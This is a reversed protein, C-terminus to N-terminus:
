GILTKTKKQRQWYKRQAKSIKSPSGAIEEANDGTVVEFSEGGEEGYFSKPMPPIMPFLPRERLMENERRIAEALSGTSGVSVSSEAGPSKHDASGDDVELPDLAMFQNSQMDAIDQHMKRIKAEM